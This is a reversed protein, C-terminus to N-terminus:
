PHDSLPGCSYLHDFPLAPFPTSHHTSAFHLEVRVLDVPDVLDVPGVLDEQAVLVEQAVLLEPEVLFSLTLLSCVLQANTRLPIPSLVM